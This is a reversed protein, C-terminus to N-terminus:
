AHPQTASRHDADRGAIVFSAAAYQGLLVLSTAHSGGSVTLTGRNRAM